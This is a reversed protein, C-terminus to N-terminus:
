FQGALIQNGNVTMNISFTASGASNTATCMYTGSHAATANSISLVSTTDTVRNTVIQIGRSDDFGRFSWKIVIPKDGKPIQCFLNFADGVYVNEDYSIPIILPKESFCRFLNYTGSRNSNTKARM